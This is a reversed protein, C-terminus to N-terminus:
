KAGGSGFRRYIGDSANASFLTPSILHEFFHQLYQEPKGRKFYFLILALGLSSGFVMPIKVSTTGFILNQASLNLLLILVDSLELGLIKNKTELTRPVTSTLLTEESMLAGDTLHFRCHGSIWVCHHKGPDRVM